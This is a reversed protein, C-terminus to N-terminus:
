RADKHPFHFVRLRDVTCQLLLLRQYDLAAHVKDLRTGHDSQGVTVKEELLEDSVEISHEYISRIVEHTANQLCFQRLSAESKTLEHLCPKGLHFHDHLPLRM